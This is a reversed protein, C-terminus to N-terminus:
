EGTIEKRITELEEDSAKPGLGPKLYGEKIPYLKVHVHDVDFGEIVLCTRKPNLKDDLLKAVKKSALMLQNYDDDQLDFAYGGLHEKPIVLAQGRTNPMIDLFAIFEDDEYIVHSPIEKKAIKCFICDEM